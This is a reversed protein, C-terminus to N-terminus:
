RADRRDRGEGDDSRLSIGSIAEKNSSKGGQHRPALHLSETFAFVGPRSPGLRVFSVLRQSAASSFTVTPGHTPQVVQPQFHLPTTQPRTYNGSGLSVELTQNELFVARHPSGDLEGDM